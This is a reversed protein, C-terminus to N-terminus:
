DRKNYYDQLILEEALKEMTERECWQGKVSGSQVIGLFKCGGLCTPIFPCDQDCGRWSEAEVFEDLKSNYKDESIHGVSFESYGTMVPCKYINGDCDIVVGSHRSLLTCALYGFSVDKMPKNKKALERRIRVNMEHSTHKYKELYDKMEIGSSSEKDGFRPLLPTFGINYIKDLLGDRKLYDLLKFMEENNTHDYNGAISVKIPLDLMNKINTIITDFTSGGGVLPRSNDHIKKPGDVTIRVLDLGLSSLEEAVVRTLLFGNSVMSFRVEFVNEAAEKIKRMIYRIAPLNLLPEGGYFTLNIKEYGHKKQQMLLWEIVRDSKTDDLVAKKKVNEEFCYKCAFNCEMTTLVTVEFADANPEYKIQSMYKELRSNEDEDDHVILGNSLLADITENSEEPNEIHPLTEILKVVDEEASILAQTCTNYFVFRGPEDPIPYYLTFRSKQM